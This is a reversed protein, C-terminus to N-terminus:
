SANDTTLLTTQDPDIAISSFFGCFKRQGDQLLLEIAISSFYIAISSLYNSRSQVLKQGAEFWYFTIDSVINPALVHSEGISFISSFEDRPVNLVIAISFFIWPCRAM